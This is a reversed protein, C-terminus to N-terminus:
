LNFVFAALKSQAFNKMKGAIQKGVEASLIKEYKFNIDIGARGLQKELLEEEHRNLSSEDQGQQWLSPYLNEIEM